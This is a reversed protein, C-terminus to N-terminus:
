SHTINSTSERHLEDIPDDDKTISPPSTKSFIGQHVSLKPINPTNSATSEDIKIKAITASKIERIQEGDNGDSVNSKILQNLLKDAQTANIELQNIKRNLFLNTIAIIAVGFFLVPLVPLIVSSAIFLPALTLGAVILALALVLLESTNKAKYKLKQYNEESAIVNSEENKIIEEIIQKQQEIELFSLDIFGEENKLEYEAFDKLLQKNEECVREVKINNLAPM